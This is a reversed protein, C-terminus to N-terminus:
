RRYKVIYEFWRTSAEMYGHEALGVAIREAGSLVAEVYEADYQTHLLPTDLPLNQANGLITALSATISMEGAMWACRETETTETREDITM